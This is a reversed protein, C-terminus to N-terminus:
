LSATEAAMESLRRTALRLWADILGEDESWTCSVAVGAGRLGNTWPHLKLTFSHDKRLAAIITNPASGLRREEMIFDFAAQVRERLPPKM